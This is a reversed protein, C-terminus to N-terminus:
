FYNWWVLSHRSSCIQYCEISSYLSPYTYVRSCSTMVEPFRQIYLLDPLIYVLWWSAFCERNCVRMCEIVSDNVEQFLPIRRWWLTWVALTGSDDGAGMLGRVHVVEAHYEVLLIEEGGISYYLSSSMRCTEGRTSSWHIRCWQSLRSNCSDLRWWSWYFRWHNWRWVTRRTERWVLLKVLIDVVVVDALVIVSLNKSLDRTKRLGLIPCWGPCMVSLNKSLDRTKGWAWFQHNQTDRSERLSFIM